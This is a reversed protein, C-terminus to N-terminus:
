GASAATYAPWDALVDSAVEQVLSFKGVGLVHAMTVAGVADSKEVRWARCLLLHERISDKEGLLVNLMLLSAPVLQKPLSPALHEFRVRYAKLLRPNNSRLFQVWPPEEGITRAYWAEIRDLEGPLVELTSADIGSQFAAQDVGWGISAWDPRPGRPALELNQVAEAIREIGPPGAQLFAIAIAELVESRNFGNNLLRVVMYRIGSVYGIIAYYGIFAIAEISGHPGRIRRARREASTAVSTYVTRRYRKLAGAGPENDLLFDFGPHSRGDAQAYAAKFATREDDTTVDLNLLDLGRDIM